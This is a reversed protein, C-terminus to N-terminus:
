KDTPVPIGAGAARNIQITLSEDLYRSYKKELRTVEAVAAASAVGAVADDDADLRLCCPGGMAQFNHEIRVM